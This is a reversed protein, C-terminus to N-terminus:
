HSWSTALQGLRHIAQREAPAVMRADSSDLHWQLGALDIRLRGDIRLPQWPGGGVVACGAAEAARASLGQLLRTAEEVGEDPVVALAGGDQWREALIAVVEEVAAGHTAQRAPNDIIGTEAHIAEVVVEYLVDGPLLTGVVGPQVSRVLVGRGPTQEVRDAVRAAVESSWTCGLLVEGDIEGTDM